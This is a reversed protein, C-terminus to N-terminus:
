TSPGFVRRLRTGLRKAGLVRGHGAIIVNDKDILCPVIFGYERISSALKAIQAPPHARANKEYPTLQEIPLMEIEIPAGNDGKKAPVPASNGNGIKAKPPM